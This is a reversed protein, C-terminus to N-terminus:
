DAVYKDEDDKRILDERMCELYLEDRKDDSIRNEEYLENVKSIYYGYTGSQGGKEYLSVDYGMRKAKSIVGDRYGETEDRTLYGDMVLRTLLANHSIGYMQEIEIIKKISITKDGTMLDDLAPAPLLFYSAFIDAKHEEEDNKGSFKPCINSSRDKSFFLHYLEHALTFNQRGKSCDTNVAILSSHDLKICIGSINTGLPYFILTLKDIRGITRVIDIPSMADEKLSSRVRLAKNSLDMRDIKM